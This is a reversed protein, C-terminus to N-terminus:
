IEVWKQKIGPKFYTEDEYEWLIIHPEIKKGKERYTEKYESNEKILQKVIYKSIKEKLEKSQKINRKMEINIQFKQDQKKTYEVAMTFKGTVYMELGKCQLARRTTEPYIQFAYLSVSFDSREYVHVFPLEWVTNKIGVKKAERMLDVGEDSFIKKMNNFSIVGGHDKLDYRVLPLGSFASCLLSGDVDEFYFLDPIYQTLTPLKTTDGFLSRYIKKNKLAMRRALISIPTEHSMTGLDVTGYHNLTDIYPNKLGAKRIVYDRFTETFLEASFIFKINYKKWNLGENEGDDIIDKLFPGYSGIITQDFHSSLKRVAKIVEQKYVGPTIISLKYDGREALIRIAEFTFVGGIWAGMPFADIYLTSQKHINFNTRLYIETVAAYQLDQEKERPFYFPEGTSGSTTSITWKKNKLDGDWCLEELPNKKLYNDKDITPLKAFDTITKISNPNIKHEKLFKKYAPVRKSMMHFLMLARKKGNQVWREESNKELDKLLTTPNRFRNTIAQNLM